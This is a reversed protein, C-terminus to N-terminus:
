KGTAPLTLTVEHSTQGIPVQVPGLTIQMSRPQLRFPVTPAPDIVLRGQADTTQDRLRVGDGHLMCAVNAAPTSGDAQLLTIVVWRRVFVFDGVVLDIDYKGPLLGEATFSGDGSPVFQGYRARRSRLVIRAAAPPAGALLVRGRVSALKLATADIDLKTDGEAQVVVDIPSLDMAAFGSQGGHEERFSVMCDLRLQYRGPLLGRLVYSGDGQLSVPEGFNALPDPEGRHRLIRIRAPDFGQVRVVGVIKGAAPPVVVLEHGPDFNAPDVLALPHDGTVRVVLGERNSPVFVAARGREDTTVESLLEHFRMKPDSSWGRNGRRPDQVWAAADWPDTGEVILEVTSGIVPAGADSADFEISARPRLAWDIPIVQLVNTGRWGPPARRTSSAFSLM